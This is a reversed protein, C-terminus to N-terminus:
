GPHTDVIQAIGVKLTEGDGDRRQVFLLSDDGDNFPIEALKIGAYCCEAAHLDIQAAVFCGDEFDGDLTTEGSPCLVRRIFRSGTQELTEEGFSPGCTM